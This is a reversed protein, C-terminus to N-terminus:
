NHSVSHDGGLFSLVFSHGRDSSKIDDQFDSSTCHSTFLFSVHLSSSPLFLVTQQHCIQGHLFVEWIFMNIPIMFM